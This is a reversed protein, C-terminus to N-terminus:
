RISRFLYDENTSESQAAQLSQQSQSHQTTQEVLNIEAQQKLKAKCVKVFHNQKNCFLCIKGQALCPRDTHPFKDGCNRCIKSKSYQQQKAKAPEQRNQREHKVYHVDSIDSM